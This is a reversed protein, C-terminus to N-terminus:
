FVVNNTWHVIWHITWSAQANPQPSTNHATNQQVVVEPTGGSSYNKEKAADV